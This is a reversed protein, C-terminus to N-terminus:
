DIEKLTLHINIDDSQDEERECRETKELSTYDGGTLEAETSLDITLSGTETCTETGSESSAM